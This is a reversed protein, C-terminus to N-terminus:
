TSKLFRFFSNNVNTTRIDFLGQVNQFIIERFNCNHFEVTNKFACEEFVIALDLRNINEFILRNEFICKKFIIRDDEKIKEFYFNSKISEGLLLTTFIKNEFFIVGNYLETILDAKEMLKKRREKFFDSFIKIDEPIRERQEGIIDPIELKKKM